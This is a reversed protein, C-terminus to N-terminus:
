MHAYKDSELEHGHNIYVLLRGNVVKTKHCRQKVGQSRFGLSRIKVTGEALREIDVAEYFSNGTSISIIKQHYPCRICPEGNIEEIDGVHQELPGAAHFCNADLAFFNDGHHFIAVNRGSVVVRRSRGLFEFTSGVDVYNQIYLEDLSEPM